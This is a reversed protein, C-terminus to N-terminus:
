HRAKGGKGITKEFKAIQSTAELEARVSRVTNDSVGLM